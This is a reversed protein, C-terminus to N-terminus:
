EYAQSLTFAQKRGFDSLNANTWGTLTGGLNGQSECNRVLLLKTTNQAPQLFHKLHAVLPKIDVQKLM